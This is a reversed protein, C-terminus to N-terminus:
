GLGRTGNQSIESTFAQLGVFGRSSLCGRDGHWQEHRNWTDLGREVNCEANEGNREGRPSRRLMPVASLLAEVM